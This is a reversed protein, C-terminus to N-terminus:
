IPPSDRPVRRCVWGHHDEVHLPRLLLVLKQKFGRHLAVDAVQEALEHLDVVQPQLHEAESQAAPLEALVPRQPWLLRPAERVVEALVRLQVRVRVTRRRVRVRVAVARAHRRRGLHALDQLARGLLRLRGDVDGEDRLLARQVPRRALRVDVVHAACHHDGVRGVVPQRDVVGRAQLQLVVLLEVALRLQLLHEIGGLRVEPPGALLQSYVLRELLVDALVLLGLDHRLQAGLGRAGGDPLGADVLVRVLRHQRVVVLLLLLLLLESGVFVVRVEVRLPGVGLGHLGLEDAAAAADLHPNRALSSHPEVGAAMRWTCSDM